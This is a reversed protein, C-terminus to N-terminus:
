RLPQERVTIELRNTTEEARDTAPRVSARVWGGIKDVKYSITVWRERYSEGEATELVEGGAASVLKRVDSRVGRLIPTADTPSLVVPAPDDGKRAAFTVWAQNEDWEESENVATQGRKSSDLLDFQWGEATLNKEAEIRVGDALIMRVATPPPPSLPRGFTCGALAILSIALPRRM